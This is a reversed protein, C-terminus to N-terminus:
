RGSRCRRMRRLRARGAASRRGGRFGARCRRSPGSRRERQGRDDVRQDLAAGVAPGGPREDQQAGSRHQEAREREPLAVALAIRQDLGAQQGVAGVRAADEDREGEEAGEAAQQEADRQEGLEALVERRDVGPQRQDRHDDAHDGPHAHPRREDSPEATMQQVNADRDDGRSRDDQGQGHGARVRDGRQSRAGDSNRIPRPAPALMPWSNSKMRAPTPISSIPEAEPTSSATCCSELAIPTAARPVIKKEAKAPWRGVCASAIM